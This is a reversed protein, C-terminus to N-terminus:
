SFKNLCNRINIHLLLGQIKIDLEHKNKYNKIESAIEKLSKNRTKIKLKPVLRRAYNEFCVYDKFYLKRAEAANIIIEPM